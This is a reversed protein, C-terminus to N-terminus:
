LPLRNDADSSSRPNFHLCEQEGTPVARMQGSLHLSGWQDAMADAIGQYTRSREKWRDPSPGLKNQGGPTQNARRTKDDGLLRNTERLHPLGKLWLCTKKSADEGFWWPQIIQDPKRIRSSICSVPNEVCIAPVDANMLMRVFDLAEETLEARPRGDVMVGRSNWHLGSVALYTCPPHAIMLDFPGAEALVTRVDGQFHYPSDDESPLFDCSIVDDGNAAFARRVRGSYECAVLVKM